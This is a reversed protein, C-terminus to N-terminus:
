RAFLPLIRTGIQGSLIGHVRRNSYSAGVITPEQSKKLVHKQWWDPRWQGSESSVKPNSLQDGPACKPGTGPGLPAGFVLLFGFVTKPLETNKCGRQHWSTLSSPVVM